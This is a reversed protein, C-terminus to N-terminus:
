ITDRYWCPVRPSRDTLKINTAISPSSGGVEAWWLNVLLVAALLLGSRVSSGEVAPKLVMLVGATLVAGFWCACSVVLWGLFGASLRALSAWRQPHHQTM